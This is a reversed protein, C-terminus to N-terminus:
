QYRPAGSAVARSSGSGREELMAEVAAVVGAGSVVTYHWEAAGLLLPFLYTYATKYERGNFANHLIVM